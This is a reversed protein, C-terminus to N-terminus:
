YNIRMLGSIIRLAGYLSCLPLLELACLYLFSQLVIANEKLFTTYQKYFVMMKVLTVIIIVCITTTRLSLNFYVVLLVIPFLLIGELSVIFFNSKRWHDTQSPTFFIWNVFDYLLMKAFFYAAFFLTLLSIIQYPEFIFTRGVTERMVWMWLISCILCTQFVLFLQFWMEGSTETIDTSRNRDTPRYIDKLQKLIFYRLKSLTLAAILFCGLLLSTILDDGALSYPIPDGAVGLREAPLEPHFLSDKLFFSGEYYLSDISYPM